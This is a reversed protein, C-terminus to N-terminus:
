RTEKTKKMQLLLMKGETKLWRRCNEYDPCYRYLEAYFKESHNMQKRHCLEHIVVADLVEPPCLALLMNFSLNGKATCSGWLTLQARITIFEYSVGLLSAFHKVREPIIKKAKEKLVSLQPETFPEVEVYKQKETLVREKTKKIWDLNQEISLLLDKKTARYPARVEVTGDGCVKIGITKRGSCVVRASHFVREAETPM